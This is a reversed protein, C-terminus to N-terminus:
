ENVNLIHTSNFRLYVVAVIRNYRDKVYLDDVDLYVKSGYKGVLYELARKSAEGGPTGLEPANIDALRVRGVPFSDFTDGDVVRRVEAIVDIEWGDGSYVPKYSLPRATCIGLTVIIFVTLLVKFGSRM